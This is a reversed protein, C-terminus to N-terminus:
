HFLHEFNITIVCIFSVISYFASVVHEVDNYVTFDNIVIIEVKSIISSLFLNRLLESRCVAAKHEAYQAADLFNFTSSVDWRCGSPPTCVSGASVLALLLGNCQVFALM